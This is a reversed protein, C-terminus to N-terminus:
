NDYFGFRSALSMTPPNTSESSLLLLYVQNKYIDTNASGTYKVHDNVRVYWHQATGDTGSLSMTFVKDRLVQYRSLHDVHLAADVSASQLIDTVTPASGTNEMDKVLMVRMTNTTATNATARYMHFRLYLTKGLISNGNRNAVDDGQSTATLNTITGANDITTGVSTDLYKKEVNVLGRIFKFGKYARMALSKWNTGGGPRFSSRVVTHGRRFRARRRRFPM